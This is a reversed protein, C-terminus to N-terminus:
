IQNREAKLLGGHWLRVATKAPAFFPMDQEEKMLFWSVNVALALFLLITPVAAWRFFRESITRESQLLVDSLNVGRRDVASCFQDVHRRLRNELKCRRSLGTEGTGLCVPLGHHGHDVGPGCLVRGEGQPRGENDDTFPPNSM